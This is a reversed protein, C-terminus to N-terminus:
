ASPKDGQETGRELVVPTEPKEGHERKCVGSLSNIIEIESVGCYACHNCSLQFIIAFTEQTHINEHKRRISIKTRTAKLIYM